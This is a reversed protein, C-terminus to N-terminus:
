TSENSGGDRVTFRFTAGRGLQSEVWIRGGYREVIRKCIALGMGSGSYEAISHLRKFIGFIDNAYQQDIGIGNDQVAFVWDNERRLADIVIKPSEKNRYKISNGLLNQFVQQLHAPQMRVRPLDRRTIVAGSEEIAAQLNSIAGSLAENAEVAMTAREPTSTFSTYALLDTILRGM